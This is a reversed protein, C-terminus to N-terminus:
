DSPPLYKDLNARLKREYKLQVFNEIPKNFSLTKDYRAEKIGIFAARVKGKAFRQYIMPRGDSTKGMFYTGNRKRTEALVTRARAATINGGEGTRLREVPLFQTSNINFRSRLWGLFGRAKLGVELGKDNRTGGELLPDLYRSVRPDLYITARLDTKSSKLVRAGNLTFNVPRDLNRRFSDKVADRSEFALDNLTKSTIFPIQDAAHVM